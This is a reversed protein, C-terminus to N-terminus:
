IHLKFLFRTDFLALSAGANGSQIFNGNGIKYYSLGRTKGIYCYAAELSLGINKYKFSINARPEIYFGNFTIDWFTDPDPPSRMLHNDYANCYAFPSIQFSLDFSFPSLINTGIYFGTAILVWDQKYRIVEFGEFSENGSPYNGYGDRGTFSFHMWSGSFFPKIYFYQKVPLSAGLIIDLWYFDNTKNTHSSFHTLEANNQSIWDRDEMAGSDGSFGAKFSASAFFGPGSMLDRLNFDLQAGMYHVPKMDWILESLLKGDKATPYVLEFAQGYVLGYQYAISFSYKMSNQSKGNIERNNDETEQKINQCYASIKVTSAGIIIVLVALVAINKM